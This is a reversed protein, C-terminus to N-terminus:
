IVPLYDSQLKFQTMWLFGWKLPDAVSLTVNGTLSTCRSDATLQGQTTTDTAVPM